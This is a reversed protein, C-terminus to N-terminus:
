PKGGADGTLVQLAAELKGVAEEENAAAQRIHQAFERRTKPDALGQQAAPEQWDGWKWVQGAVDGVQDYLTAAATLEAAVEPVADAMRRLFEAGAHREHLM